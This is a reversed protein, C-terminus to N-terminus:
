QAVESVAVPRLAVEAVFSDLEGFVEAPDDFTAYRSMPLCSQLDRLLTTRIPADRWVAFFVPLRPGAYANYALEFATSESMATRVVVMASAADIMGLRFRRFADPSFRLGTAQEFHEAFSGANQAEEDPLLALRRGCVVQDRLHDLVSQIVRQERGGSQTLPQRVYIPLPSAAVPRPGPKRTALLQPVPM